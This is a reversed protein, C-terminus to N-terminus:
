GARVACASRLRYKECIGDDRWKLQNKKGKQFDQKEFVSMLHNLEEETLLNSLDNQLSLDFHVFFLIHKQFVFAGSVAM